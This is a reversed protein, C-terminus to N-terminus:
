ITGADGHGRAVILDCYSSAIRDNEALGLAETLERLLEEATASSEGANIPAEFEVFDGLREVEDIHIRVERWLFLRRRKEVVANVGLVDGLAARLLAPEEIPVLRFRSERDEIRDPRRYAILESRGPEERLKLRGEHTRFYTDKQQLIGHDEAGM